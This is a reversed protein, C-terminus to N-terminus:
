SLSLLMQGRIPRSQIRKVLLTRPTNVVGVGVTSKQMFNIGGGGGGNWGM